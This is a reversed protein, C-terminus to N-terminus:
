NKIKSFKGQEKMATLEKDLQDMMLVIRDKLSSYKVDICRKHAMNLAVLAPVPKGLKNYCDALHYFPIPNEESLFGCLIYYQAAEQFNKLMHFCAAIAMMYRPEKANGINLMHLYPLAENYRGTKYLNCAKQYCEEFTKENARLEVPLVDKIIALAIEETEKAPKWAQIPAEENFEDLSPKEEEMM